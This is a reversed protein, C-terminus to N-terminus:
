QITGTQHGEAWQIRARFSVARLLESQFETIIADLNDIHVAYIRPHSITFLFVEVNAATVDPLM